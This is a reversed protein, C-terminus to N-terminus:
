ITDAELALSTAAIVQITRGDPQRFSKEIGRAEIIAEGRPAAPGPEEEIGPLAETKGAQQGAPAALEDMLLQWAEEPLEDLFHDRDASNMANAIAQLEGLPRAHLLVYALSYPFHAVVQAAVDVPLQRFVTRQQEFPLALMFDAASGPGLEQLSAVALKWQRQVLQEHLRELLTSNAM